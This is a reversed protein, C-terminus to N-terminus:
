KTAGKVSKALEKKIHELAAKRKADWAPRFFPQAPMQGGRAGFEVLHAHPAIKRDIASITPRPEGHRRKEMMKTVPSSRLNGTVKRIKNVNAQVEATVIEGAGFIIPEVEDASMSDIIKKISRELEPLGELKVHAWQAM